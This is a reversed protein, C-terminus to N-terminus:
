KEMLINKSALKVAEKAKSKDFKIDTFKKVVNVTMEEAVNIVDNIVTNQTNIIKKEAKSVKLELKASIEKEKKEISQKSDLM